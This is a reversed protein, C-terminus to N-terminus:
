IEFLRGWEPMPDGIGALRLAHWAMAHNSSTVPKGLEKELRAAMEAVRISTCSVFVADVSPHRGLELAARRISDASIRAVNNDNEENFSGIAPVEIGRDQVFKRLLRNVSDIYPTLLAVRKAGLAKFGAIAGTIPTTCKVNPWAEHIRRFVNEEGIVVTGSTCGYAVVDMPMGPKIVAAAETMGQEMKALTTPNIESSNMIRSQYLAVGDLRFIKRYEYEITQDSALVIVGIAARHAIGRDLDFPLHQRNVLLGDGLPGDTGASKHELTTSDTM